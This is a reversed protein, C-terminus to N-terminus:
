VRVALYVLRLLRRESTLKQVCALFRQLGSFNAEGEIAILDHRHNERGERWRDAIAAANATTDSVHVSAFGALKLLRENEGPPSFIYHGISSRTAIEEHSIAGGIVLADSFLLKGGPKLVRNLERLLGLRDPIHCLVDNSFACDFCNDPFALPASVDCAHFDVSASLNEGQAFRAANAVARPNIDVGTLRCGSVKAVQLAYRGSGSGIELVRSASNLGLLRPIEDSEESTVWSTQGLDRGYTAIRIQRYVEAEYNDYAHDYLNVPATM